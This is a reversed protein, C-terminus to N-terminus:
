VSLPPRPRDLLEEKVAVFAPRLRKAEKSPPSTRRDRLLYLIWNDKGVVAWKRTSRRTAHNNGSRALGHLAAHGYGIPISVGRIGGKQQLTASSLPKQEAHTM